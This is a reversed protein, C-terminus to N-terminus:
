PRRAKDELDRLRRIARHLLLAAAERSTGLREALEATTLGEVKALLIAQRYNEPLGDLKRILAQLDEREGLIRSPTRSDAPEPGGPNSHSRFPVAEGARRQRGHHRVADAIVHDAIRSLWRQFSGPSQYQFSDMDRFAELFTEQLVDDVEMLRRVEAGLKYHILVALRSKHREFLGTFADRDGAKVRAILGFSSTPAAVASYYVRM